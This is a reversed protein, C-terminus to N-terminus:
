IKLLKLGVEEDYERSLSIDLAILFVELTVAVHAEKVHAGLVRGGEDCATLVAHAHIFPRGEVLAVNGNMSAVEFEGSEETFFYERKKLDYYGIKVRDVSGIAHFAAAHIGHEDCYKTLAAIVEEGRSLVIM